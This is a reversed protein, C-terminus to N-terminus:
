TTEASVAVPDLWGWRDATRGDFLGFFADQISKTVEGPKGDGIPIRDVSRIPTVEAATGTLFAEDSLYLFERPIPEERITLGLDRALEIVTDRTIGGLISSALPPTHIVGDRVVFLNEGSGESLTGNPNVAIGEAFGNRHAEQAILQANLYHGGAKSLVPNSASTIRHWSSICVDIGFKLGEDGLYTGWEIAGVAVETPCAGAPNLAISGVGRFAIPRIYASSLQNQAVVDRCAQAIEEAEYPIEIQYIKASDFLRRIHAGLRFIATATPTQYARIGEFISSGYHLGHAFVHVTAQDWPVMQGNYWIVDSPKMSM